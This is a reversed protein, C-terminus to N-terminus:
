TDQFKEFNEVTEYIYKRLIKINREVTKEGFNPM